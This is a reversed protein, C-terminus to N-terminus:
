SKKSRKIDFYGKVAESGLASAVDYINAGGSSSRKKSKKGKKKPKKKTKSFKDIKKELKKISKKDKKRQHKQEEFQQRQMEIIARFLTDADAFPTQPQIVRQPTNMGSNTVPYPQPAFGTPPTTTEDFSKTTM